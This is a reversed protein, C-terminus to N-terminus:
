GTDEQVIIGYGKAGALLGGMATEATGEAYWKPGERVLTIARILNKGTLEEDTFLLRFIEESDETNIGRVFLGRTQGFHLGQATEDYISLVIVVKQVDFPINDFDFFLTENDGEGAGVRDDGLHTVAGDCGKPNNYFVFDEDNRTLSNRDLLFCTLDVDIPRIDIERQEWGAAIYLQRLSPVKKRLDLYDGKHLINKEDDFTQAALEASIVTGDELIKGEPKPLAREKERPTFDMPPNDDGRKDDIPRINDDFDKAFKGLDGADDSM